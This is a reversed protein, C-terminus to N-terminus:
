NKVIIRGGVYSTHYQKLPESAPGKVPSGNGGFLIFQSGCVPCTATGSDGDVKVRTTTSVEHPCCGDFAFFPNPADVLDRFIIVGGYGANNFVAAGGPINLEIVNSPNINMNVYVYPIVSEYDDKCSGLALVMLVGTLFAIRVSHFFRIM